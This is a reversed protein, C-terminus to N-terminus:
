CKKFGEGKQILREVEDIIELLRELSSNNQESYHGGVCIRAPGVLDLNIEVWAVVGDSSEIRPRSCIVLDLDSRAMVEELEDLDSTALEAHPRLIRIAAAITERYSRYNDEFSVLIKIEQGM